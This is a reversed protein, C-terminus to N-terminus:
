ELIKVYNSPVKGNKDSLSCLWWSPDSNDVIAMVDNTKFSLEDDNQKAYDYLAVCVDQCQKVPTKRLTTAVTIERQQILDQIVSEAERLKALLITCNPCM